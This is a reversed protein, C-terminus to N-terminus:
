VVDILVGDAGCSVAARLRQMEEVEEREREMEEKADREGEEERPLSTRDRLKEAVLTRALVLMGAAAGAEAHLEDLERQAAAKAARVCHLFESATKTRAPACEGVGRPGAGADGIVVGGVGMAALARCALFTSRAGGFAGVSEVVVRRPACAGCRCCMRLTDKPTKTNKTTVLILTPM